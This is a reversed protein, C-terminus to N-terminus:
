PDSVAPLAPLPATPEARLLQYGPINDKLVALPNSGFGIRSLGVLELQLMLKTTADNASTSQRQAVIRGIWCGSDYELGVLASSIRKDILSYDTRGVGYLTGSCSSAASRSSARLAEGAQVAQAAPTIAAGPRYLPWQWGLTVQESAGRQQRYTLSVTRLAGPSYRVSAITRSVSRVESNYQLALDLNWRPVASTSGLLLLDSLRSTLPVGDPTILQDALLYRQAVGLRALEAGSHADIFRTTLGATVQNADAVRDVGSFTNDAFVTTFNYDLGASDFNPLQAQNRWPTRLYLLRPELTQTVARSGWHVERELQWRSDLSFTPILRSARMRGDALPTDLDYAAANLSLRPVLQWGSDGYLGALTGLVHARNGSLQSTDENTFRNVETQISWELGSGAARWRVGLQPARRYPSVIHAAPDSDQLTQWRQVRAYVQEELDTDSGLSVHRTRQALAQTPLLRPTLNDAGRLGDKWYDNDSVRLTQWGYTVDGGLGGAHQWRLAWRQETTVQDRPLVYLNSTGSWRPELYRLETNLGAGRKTSLTPMLTADYNPALNWYYPVALEFGVASSTTMEPPLWGSKRESNVPFSLVPVALIPVGQFRLVAGTALGENADFDLRVERARLVWAPEDGDEVRCTTYTAGSVTYRNPGLFDIRDAQGGGQLSAILYRSQLVHGQRTETNLDLSTGSFRDGGRQLTVGGSAHVEREGLRLALHEASLFLTGQQLQVGGDGVLETGAQGSIRGAQLRLEEGTAGAVRLGAGAPVAPAPTASAAAAPAAPAASVAAAADTCDPVAPAAAAAAPIACVLGSVVLCVALAVPTPSFVSLVSVQVFAL